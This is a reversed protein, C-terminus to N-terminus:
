RHTIVSVWPNSGPGRVPGSVITGDEKMIVATSHSGGRYTIIFYSFGQPNFSVHMYGCM